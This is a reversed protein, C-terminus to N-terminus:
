TLSLRNYTLFGKKQTNYEFFSYLYTLKTINEYYLLLFQEFYTIYLIYIIDMDQLLSYNAIQNEM